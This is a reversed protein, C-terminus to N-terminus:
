AASPDFGSPQAAAHNEDKKKHGSIGPAADSKRGELVDSLWSLWAQQCRRRVAEFANTGKARNANSPSLAIDM